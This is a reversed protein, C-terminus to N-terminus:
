LSMCDECYGQSTPVSIIQRVSNPFSLSLSEVGGEWTVNALFSKFELQDSGLAGMM